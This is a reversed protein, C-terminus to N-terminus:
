SCGLRSAIRLASLEPLGIIGLGLRHFTTKRVRCEWRTHLGQQGADVAPTQTEQPRGKIRREVARM